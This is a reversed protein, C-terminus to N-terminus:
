HNHAAAAEVAKKVDDYKPEDTPVQSVWVWSVNGHPDVVFVSRAAATFGVNALNEFVVGYLRIAEHKHDSLLAFPLNQQKKFEALAFPSDVSIGYVTAGLNQYDAIADRFTCLESTCVRTFAAPFFALVTVHGHEPVSVAKRDTDFLTFHPAHTGIKIAM